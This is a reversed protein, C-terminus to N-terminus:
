MEHHGNIEVAIVLVQPPQQIERALKVPKGHRTRRLPVRDPYLLAELCDQHHSRGGGGDDKSQQRRQQSRQPKNHLDGDNETHFLLGSRLGTGRQVSRTQVNETRYAHTSRQEQTEMGVEM